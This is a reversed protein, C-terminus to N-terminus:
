KLFAHQSEEIFKKLFEETISGLIEGLIGRFSFSLEKFFFEHPEVLLKHQSEEFLRKM